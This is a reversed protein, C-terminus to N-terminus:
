QVGQMPAYYTWSNGGYNFYVRNAYAGGAGKNAIWFCLTAGAQRVIVGPTTGMTASSVFNFTVGAGTPYPAYIISNGSKTFTYYTSGSAIYFWAPTSPMSSMAPPVVTQVGTYKYDIVYVSDSYGDDLGAFQIAFGYTGVTNQSPHGIPRSSTPSYTGRLACIARDQGWQTGIDNNTSYPLMKPNLSSANGAADAAVSMKVGLSTSQLVSTVDKDFTWTFTYRRLPKGPDAVQVYLAGGLADARTPKFLTISGKAWGSNANVAHGTAATSANLHWSSYTTTAAKASTGLALTAAATLSALIAAKM